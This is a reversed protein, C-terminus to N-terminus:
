PIKIGGQSLREGPAPLTLDEIVSMLYEAALAIGFRDEYCSKAAMKMVAKDEPSLSKWGRFLYEAGELTDSGVLGANDAEIERWINIKNSILVPKGCALAEAVAIGFNEQHSILVFAESHYLAGWKADGTLMGPWGVSGPPCIRDALARMQKGFATELGPGAVVLNPIPPHRPVNTSRCFASYTKILLDVGKKPDIRGLFLFYPKGKIDHNKQNFAEEMGQHYEPPPPIGFRVDIQRKPQYPRFTGGALRMEESCTFFVAGADRIVRQEVLKWYAWNRLSKLRRGPARQFWPDLMGHPFIFYPPAQPQKAAKWLAYAQYQWLGNLIVADFKPLSENLWPLLAPHYNWPGRGQGLAHICMTERSLYDSNPDDLCVVEVANRRDLIHPTLNRIGQCAGGTRPNMSGIVHLIKM